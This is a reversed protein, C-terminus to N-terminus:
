YRLITLWLGEEDASAAARKEATLRWIAARDPLIAGDGDALIAVVQRVLSDLDPDGAQGPDATASVQAELAVEFVYGSLDTAEAIGDFLTLSQRIARHWAAEARSDVPAAPLGAVFTRPLWEAATGPWPIM